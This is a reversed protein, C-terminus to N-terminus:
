AAARGAEGNARAVLWDAAKSAASAARVIARNDARLIALWHGIYDAHRVTPVIGLRACLFASGMEAVLEERAYSARDLGKMLQRDLRSAHGTAHTLEHLATRYWDIAAFFASQPPVQVYDAAPLYFAKTGGIRFDVGSAAILAEAAPVADADSPAAPAGTLAADLGDCQEVNFLTFRKLFAISRAESGSEAASSSAGDSGRPSPQDAESRAKPIFRDAYVVCTGREGKRVAGGAARAQAFTLWRQTPWATDTVANWLILINIGSYARQTVANVPLGCAAASGDWPQVWPVRGAELEALIRQTVEAYIDSRDATAASRRCTKEM